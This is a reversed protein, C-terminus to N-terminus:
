CIARPRRIARIAAAAVIATPPMAAPQPSSEELESVEPPPEPSRDPFIVISPEEVTAGSVEAAASAKVASLPPTLM